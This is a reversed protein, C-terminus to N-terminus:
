EIEKRPDIFVDKNNPRMKKIKGEIEDYLNYAFIVIKLDRKDAIFHDSNYIPVNVGPIYKGQKLPNDEVVYEPKLNLYNMLVIGNASAGYGVFDTIGKLHDMEHFDQKEPIALEYLNSLGHMPSETISKVELNCVRALYSMSCPNFYSVHEHYFSDIRDLTNLIYIRGGGKLLMRMEMLFEKPDSNHAFVNFATIVNFSEDIYHNKLPFYDNLVGLEKECNDALKKAPEIGKTKWEFDKFQKLLTGDNSGIDLISPNQTGEFKDDMELAFNYFYRHHTQSTGTTYLYNDFLVEPAVAISLQKHTCMPCQNVTLDYKEVEEGKICLNNVLPQKGLSFYEELKDYNCVLCKDVTKQM